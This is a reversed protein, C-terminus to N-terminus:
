DDEKDVKDLLEIMHKTLAKDTAEREDLAKLRRDIEKLIRDEDEERCASLWDTILSHLEDTM